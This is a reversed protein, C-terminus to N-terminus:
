VAAVEGLQRGESRHRSQCGAKHRREFAFAIWRVAILCCRTAYLEISRGRWNDIDEEGTVDAIQDWQTPGVVLGSKQGVFYVVPKM